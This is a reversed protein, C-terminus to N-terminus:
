TFNCFHKRPNKLSLSYNVCEATAHFLVFLSKKITVLNLPRRANKGYGLEGDRFNQVSCAYLITRSLKGAIVFYIVFAIDIISLDFSNQAIVIISIQYYIIASLNNRYIGMEAYLCGSHAHHM